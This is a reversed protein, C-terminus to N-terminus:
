PHIAECPVGNRQSGSEYLYVCVQGTRKRASRGSYSFTETPGLQGATCGVHLPSWDTEYGRANTNTFRVEWRYNCITGLVANWSGQVSAVNDGNGVVQICTYATNLGYWPLGAGSTTCGYASASAAGPLAVAVACAGTVAVVGIPVRVRSHLWNKM